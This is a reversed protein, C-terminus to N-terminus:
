WVPTQRQSRVSLKTLPFLEKTRVSLSLLAHPGWLFSEDRRKVLRNIRRLVPIPPLRRGSPVGRPEVVVTSGLGRM